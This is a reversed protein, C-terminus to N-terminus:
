KLSVVLHDVIVLQFTEMMEDNLNLKLGDGWETVWEIKSTNPYYSFTWWIWSRKFKYHRQNFFGISISGWNSQCGYRDIIWSM